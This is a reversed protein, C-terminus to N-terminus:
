GREAGRVKEFKPLINELLSVSVQQRPASEPDCTIRNSDSGVSVMYRSCFSEDVKPKADLNLTNEHDSCCRLLVTACPVDLVPMSTSSNPNILHYSTTANM